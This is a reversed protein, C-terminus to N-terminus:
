THHTQYKPLNGQSQRRGLQFPTSHAAHSFCNRFNEVATQYFAGVVPTLEWPAREVWLGLGTRGLVGGAEWMLGSESLGEPSNGGDGPLLLRRKLGCQLASLHALVSHAGPTPPMGPMLLHIQHVGCSVSTMTTSM